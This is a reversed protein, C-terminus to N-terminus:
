EPGLGAEIGAEIVERRTEPEVTRVQRRVALGTMDAAHKLPRRDAAIATVRDAPTNQRRGLWGIVDRARREAIVTMERRGPERKGFHVVIRNESATGGTVVIDLGFALRGIMRGRTSFAIGAVARRGPKWDAEIVKANGAITYAAVITNARGTLMECMNRRSIDALVAVRGIGERRHRADIVKLHETGTRAAVIAGCGDALIRVVNLAAIAAVVAMRRQGKRRGVEVM